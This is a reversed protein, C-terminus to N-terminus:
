FYTALSFFFRDERPGRESLGRPTDWDLQWDLKFVTDEIPRWNLGFTLRDELDGDVDSDFDVRDYRVVGTFVSDPWGPVAGFGFHYNGQVYLGNQDVSARSFGPLGDTDVDAFALEGQLEFPGVTYLGDIAYISLRRSDAEDWNGTHFSFGLDTGLRPSFAFRGVVAKNDNNDEKQSGRGSRIRIRDPGGVIGADFGNVVYLEYNFLSLETPYVTGFIGLGAESLTTPIIRNDVLPRDTLDNLPSDHLLNFRGLPSLIVGGRVNFAENVNFDMHAFELKIEGDTESDGSVFGGHEFEIETMVHIRDHIQAFIFPIFRHQDFTKGGEDWEFEHDMYGGIFSGRGFRMIYPKDYVGGPLPPRRQGWPREIVPEDQEGDRDAEAQQGAAGRTTTKTVGEAPAAVDGSLVAEAVDAAVDDVRDSPVEGAKEAAAVPQSSTAGAAVDARLEALEAQLTSLQQQLLRVQETLLRVSEETSTEGADDDAPAAALPRPFTLAFTSLLFVLALARAVSRM